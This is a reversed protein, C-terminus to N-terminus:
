ESSPFGDHPGRVGFPPACLSVSAPPPFLSRSSPCHLLNDSAKAHLTSTDTIILQYQHQWAGTNFVILSPDMLLFFILVVAQLSRFVADPSSM